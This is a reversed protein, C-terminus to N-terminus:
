VPQDPSAPPPPPPPPPTQSTPSPPAPPQPVGPMASRSQDAVPNPVHPWQTTFVSPDQGGVANKAKLYQIPAFVILALGVLGSLFTFFLSGVGTVVKAQSPSSPNYAIQDSAGMTPIGGNCESANVTYSAGGVKYTVIACYTPGQSGTGPSTTYSTITGNEKVWSKPIQGGFYILVSSGIFILGFIILWVFTQMPNSSRFTPQM